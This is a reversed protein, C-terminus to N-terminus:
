EFDSCQLKKFNYGDLVMLDCADKYVRNQIDKMDDKKKIKEDKANEEDSMKKVNVILKNNKFKYYKAQYILPYDSLEGPLITQSWGSEVVADDEASISKIEESTSDYTIYVDAFCPSAFLVMAVLILIKM